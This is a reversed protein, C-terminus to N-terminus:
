YLYMERLKSIDVKLEGNLYNEVTGYDKKIQNLGTQLFERRVGFLPELSPYKEIYGAYKGTIYQNSLLYDEIVREEDVGLALLILAAGMGTRDKGATCHFLLPTDEENQLLAFFDRYRKISASDTVLQINIAGMLSDVNLSTVSALESAKLSGSGSLNGPSISYPYDEKVSSPVKDPYDRREEESRFDVISIIPIASLYDLDGTTLNHLDDSRFIKGWKVYRGDTTRIGGLDRFNFGGEMPLHREALIGKGEKTILQFYSRHTTPIDLQFSGGGKGTLLPKSLDIGDVTKGAYIEWQGETQIQLTAVKTNKDRIIEAIDSIDKGEYVTYTGKGSNCAGFFVTAFGAMAIFILAKM